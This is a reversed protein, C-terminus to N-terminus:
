RLERLSRAFVIALLGIGLGIAGGIVFAQPVGGRSGLWGFLLNGIPSCGSIAWFHVSILRGRMGEPSNAQLLANGSNLMGTGCFGLLVLCAATAYVWTQPHASAAAKIGIYGLAVMGVSFGTLGFAPIRGRGSWRSILALTGLSAVAGIGTATYLLAFAAKSLELVAFALAPLQVLYFMGFISIAIELLLVTRLSRTSWAVQLGVKTRRLLSGDDPVNLNRVTQIAFLSFLMTSYSIGNIVFCTGAGYKTLLISGITPGVLRAINFSAGTLPVANALDDEDVIEGIMSQRAPVDIAWIIGNIFSLVLIHWVQIVNLNTLLGLILATIALASQTAIVTKKKSLKDALSGAFPAILLIPIQGSFSVLGLMLPSQTLHFVLWGQAVNQM